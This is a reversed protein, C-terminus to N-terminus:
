KFECEWRWVCSHCRQLCLTFDPVASFKGIKPSMVISSYWFVTRHHFFNPLSFTWVNLFITKEPRRQRGFRLTSSLCVNQTFNYNLWFSLILSQEEFCFSKHSNQLTHVCCPKVKCVQSRICQNIILHYKLYIKWKRM